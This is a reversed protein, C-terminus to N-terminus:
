KSPAKPEPAVGTKTDGVTKGTKTDGAGKAPATKAPAAKADKPEPSTIPAPVIGQLQEKAFVEPGVPKKVPAGADKDPVVPKSFIEPGVKPPAKEAREAAKRENGARTEDAFIEPGVKPPAKEKDDAM